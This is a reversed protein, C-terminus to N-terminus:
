FFAIKKDSVSKFALLYAGGSWAHYSSGMAKKELPHVWENFEWEKEVGLRNVEALLRLQKEAQELRGAKVLAAVYFGGIYPWIGGNLYYNPEAALCKSFYPHWEKSGETIPPYLAKIPFPKAIGKKEVFDLIRGAQEKGALGACIALLNGLSDFWQEAELEGDHDKWRWPLFYGEGSCVMNTPCTLGFASGKVRKLESKNGFAKLAAYYLAVTNITHGYKHPFCDQWDSTPLQEPMGDEGTDQCRLWFFARDVAKRYKKILTKDKYSQTYAKLGFLWWLTSDLTAFTVQKGRKKDWLDVANPIQGTQSQHKGLIELSLRFQNKFERDTDVVSAGILGIMSDRSFVMNYGDKGGSAHMGHPTSCKRLAVKAKEVAQEEIKM